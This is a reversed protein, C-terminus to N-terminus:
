AKVSDTDSILLSESFSSFVSSYEASGQESTDLSRFSEFIEPALAFYTMRRDVTPRESVILKAELLRRKIIGFGASSCRVRVALQNSTLRGHAYLHLLLELHPTLLRLKTKEEVDLLQIHMKHLVPSQHFHTRHRGMSPIILM